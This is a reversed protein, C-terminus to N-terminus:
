KQYLYSGDVQRIYKGGSGISMEVVRQNKDLRVTIKEGIKLKSVAGNVKSMANVDAINLNHNRFVQMLTVGQPVTMTKSSVVAANVKAEPKSAVPKAVEIKTASQVAQPKAVSAPKVPTEPQYIVSQKVQPAPAKVEAQMQMVGDVAKQEVAQAVVPPESVAPAVAVSPVAPQTQAQIQAQQEALRQQAQAEQLAKAEAEARKAEAEDVPRFEIPLNSGQPLSEVSAPTKPKLLFFILVLALLLLLVILLRRYSTPVKDALGVLSPSKDLNAQPPIVREMNSNSAPTVMPVPEQHTVTQPEAQSTANLDSTPNEAVPAFTFGGNSPTQTHKETTSQLTQTTSSVREESPNLDLKIQSSAGLAPETHQNHQSM